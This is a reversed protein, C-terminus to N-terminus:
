PEELPPIEAHVHGIDPDVVFPNFCTFADSVKLYEQKTCPISLPTAHLQASRVGSILDTVLLAPESSLEYDNIDFTKVDSVLTQKHAVLAEIVAGLQKDFAVVHKYRAMMALFQPLSIVWITDSKLSRPIALHGVSILPLRKDRAADKSLKKMLRLATLENVFGCKFKDEDNFAASYLKLEDKSLENVLKVDLEDNLEQQADYGDVVCPNRQAFIGFFKRTPTDPM